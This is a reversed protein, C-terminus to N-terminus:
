RPINGGVVWRGTKGYEGGGCYKGRPRESHSHSKSGQRKTNEDIGQGHSGWRQRFSDPLFLGLGRDKSRRDNNLSVEITNEGQQLFPTVDIRFANYGYAWSGAFKGNVWVKPESMAGDFFLEAFSFPRDVYVTTRYFGRGIWPLAGSRGSKETKETEGNQEIAVNQLDWKKDFPGDIAWDHPIKVNAWNLSDRSFEWNQIQTEIRQAVSHLSLIFSCFLFAVKKM